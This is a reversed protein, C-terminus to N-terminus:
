GALNSAGLRDTAPCGLSGSARCQTSGTELRKLEAALTTADAFGGERMAGVVRHTWATGIVRYGETEYAERVARLTRSKGTGAEGVLMAFGGAGTLHTLAIRQEATLTLANASAAVRGKRLGYGVRGAMRAAARSVTMEAALVERTTYHTVPADAATRLGIVRHSALIELRLKARREDPLDAYGLVTALQRTTFISERATLYDLVPDIEGRRAANVAAHLAKRAETIQGNEREWRLAWAHAKTIDRTDSFARGTDPDIRSAIIHLHKHETDDHAIFVARARAMGLAALASHAARTMEEPTPNQTKDWSLSLHLCDNDLRRTRSAQNEPMASWEMIRRALELRAPSDIAFGFNQGGIITARSGAAPDWSRPRGNKDFPGGPGLCYRITGTIGRGKSLNPMM